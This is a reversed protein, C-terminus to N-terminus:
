KPIHLGAYVLTRSFIIEGCLFNSGAVTRILYAEMIMYFVYRSFNVLHYICVIIVEARVNVKKLPV